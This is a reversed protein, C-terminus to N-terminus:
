ESTVRIYAPVVAGVSGGAGTNLSGGAAGCM